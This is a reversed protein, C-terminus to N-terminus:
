SIQCLGTVRNCKTTSLLDLGSVRRIGDEVLGPQRLM